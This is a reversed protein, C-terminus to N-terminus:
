SVLMNQPTFNDVPPRVSWASVKHTANQEGDTWPARFPSPWYHDLLLATRKKALSDEGGNCLTFCCILWCGELHCGFGACTKSFFGRWGGTHDSKQACYSEVIHSIYNQTARKWYHQMDLYTCHSLIEAIIPESYMLWGKFHVFTMANSLLIDFGIRFCLCVKWAFYKMIFSYINNAFFAFLIQISINNDFTLPVHGYNIHHMQFYSLEAQVGTHVQLFSVEYM